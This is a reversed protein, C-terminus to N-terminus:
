EIQRAIRGGADYGSRLARQVRGEGAVWDGAFHLGADAASRLAEEDARADPLALRWGSEDTWDPARLRDEGLLDAVLGAAAPAVEDPPEHFREASWEPSMQAVLLSEGDPVHGAKCEERSLWGVDHGRDVNVLGYWPYDVAFPYHLVVTEITRYPVATAARRVDDLRDDEWETADLLAATQPAPPTLLLADFPGHERDRGDTLTWAEGDRAVSEVRRRTRVEADTRDLLRSALEAIGGTWSWKAPANEGEDGEAIQGGADFTWVPEEIEVLGEGGVSRVLSATWEDAEKVYNAGHDYVCGNRRRTAARGGADGEKELITVEADADRLAYAAGVGAAGAGVIGVRVTV